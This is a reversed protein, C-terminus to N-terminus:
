PKEETEINSITVVDGAEIHFDASTVMEGEDIIGVETLYEVAEGFVNDYFAVRDTPIEHSM